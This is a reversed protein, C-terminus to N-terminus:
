SQDDTAGKEYDEASVLFLNRPMPAGLDGLRSDLGFPNGSRAEQGGWEAVYEDGDEKVLVAPRGSRLTEARVEDLTMM